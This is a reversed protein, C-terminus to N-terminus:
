EHSAPLITLSSLRFFPIHSSTACCKAITSSPGHRNQMNSILLFIVLNWVINKPLYKLLRFFRYQLHFNEWIHLYKEDKSAPFQTLLELKLHRFISAFLGDLKVMGFSRSGRGGSVVVTMWMMINHWSRGWPFVIFFGVRFRNTGTLGRAWNTTHIKCPMDPSQGGGGPRDGRSQANWRM